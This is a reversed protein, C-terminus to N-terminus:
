ENKIGGKHKSIINLIKDVTDQINEDTSNIVYDCSIVDFEKYDKDIREELDDISFDPDTQVRKFLREFLVEHDANLYISIIEDDTIINKLNDVGKPDIPYFTVGLGKYQQKTAFYHRGYINTYAILDSKLVSQPIGYQTFVVCDEASEDYDIEKYNEIFIHGWENKIRAPRTTYSHIVNYGHKEMEKAITTKGAGSKGILAVIIDKSM